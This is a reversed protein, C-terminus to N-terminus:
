GHLNVCEDYWWGDRRVFVFLVFLIKRSFPIPFFDGKNRISEFLSPFCTCRKSLNIAVEKPLHVLWFIEREFLDTPRAHKTSSAYQWLLSSLEISRRWLFGALNGRNILRNVARGHVIVVPLSFNWSAVVISRILIRASVPGDRKFRDM